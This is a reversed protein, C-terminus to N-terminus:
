SDKCTTLVKVRAELRDIDLTLTDVDDHFNKVASPHALLEKEEQLYEGVNELTDEKIKKANKKRNKVFNGLKHATIDGVFQSLHEEWDINNKLFLDNLLKATDIDGEIHLHNSIFSANKQLKLRMLQFLSTYLHVDVPADFRSAVHVRRDRFVYFLTLKPRKIHFAIVKGELKKLLLQSEDGLSLYQNISKELTSLAITKM